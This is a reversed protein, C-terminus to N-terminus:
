YDEEEEEDDVVEYSAEIVPANIDSGGLDLKVVVRQDKVEKKKVVGGRDLLDQSIKAVEKYDGSQIAKEYAALYELTVNLTSSKLLAQAMFEPDAAKDKLEAEWEKYAQSDKYNQLTATSRNFKKCGDAFSVGLLVNMAAVNRVWVPLQSFETKQNHRVNQSVRELAASDM